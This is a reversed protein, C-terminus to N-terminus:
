FKIGFSWMGMEEDGGGRHGRCQDPRPQGHGYVFTRSSKVIVSYAGVLVVLAKEQNFAGKLAKVYLVSNFVM